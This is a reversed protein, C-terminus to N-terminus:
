CLATTARLFANATYKASGILGDSTSLRHSSRNTAISEEWAGVPTFIHSPMHLAHPPSPAIDAYRRAAALGKEALPPYDYSHILYHAVGPHDPHKAVQAELIASAKVRAVRGNAERHGNKRKRGSLCM